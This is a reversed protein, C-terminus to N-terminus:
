RRHNDGNIGIRGGNLRFSLTSNGRVVVMTVSDGDKTAQVESVLQEFGTITVGNYEIVLDGVQLGADAGQYGDAVQTIKVCNPRGLSLAVSNTGFRVATTIYTQTGDQAYAMVYYDGEPLFSFECRNNKDLQGYRSVYEGSKGDSKSVTITIGDSSKLSADLDVSVSITCREDITADQTQKGASLTISQKYLVDNENFEVSFAYDGPQLGEAAYNGESDVSFYQGGQSMERKRKEVNKDEVSLSTPTLRVYLNAPIKGSSSSVKGTLSAPEQFQLEFSNLGQLVTVEMAVAPYNNAQANLTWTGDPVGIYELEGQTTVPLQNVQAYNGKADTFWAYSLPVKKGASDRGTLKVRNGSDLEFDAFNEGSNLTIERSTTITGYSASVTWTGPKIGEIRYRGDADTYGTMGGYYAPMSRDSEVWEVDDVYEKLQKVESYIRRSSEASELAKLEELIRGKERGDWEGRGWSNGPNGNSGNIMVTVSQMAAGDKSTVRGSLTAGRVLRIECTAGEAKVDLTTLEEQIWGKAAVILQVKGAKGRVRFKGDGETFNAYTVYEFWGQGTDANVTVGFSSPLDGGDCNLTGSVLVPIDFQFEVLTGPSATRQGQGIEPDNININYSHKSDLGEFEFHGTADTFVVRTNRELAQFYRNYAERTKGPESVDWGVAPLDCQTSIATVKMGDIASGDTFKVSGKLHANGRDDPDIAVTETPGNFSPTHRIVPPKVIPEHSELPACPEGNDLMGPGEVADAIVPRNAPADANLMFGYAGFLIAAVTIVLQIINFASFNPKRM